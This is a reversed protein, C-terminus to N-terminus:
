LEPNTNIFFYLWSQDSRYPIIISGGYGGKFSNAWTSQDFGGAGAASASNHCGNIACRTMVIANVAPPYGTYVPTAQQRKCNFNIICIVAFLVILKSISLKM